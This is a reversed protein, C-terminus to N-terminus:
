DGFIRQLHKYESEQGQGAEHGGVGIVVPVAVLLVAHIDGSVAIDQVLLAGVVNTGVSYGARAALGHAGGADGDGDLLAGHHAVGVALGLGEGLEQMVIHALSLGEYRLFAMLATLLGKDLVVLGRDAFGHGLLLAVGLPNDVLESLLHPGAVLVALLHGPLVTLQDIYGCGDGHGRVGTGVIGGDGVRDGADLGHLHSSALGPAGRGGVRHALGGELVGAHLGLHLLAGVHDLGSAEAAGEEPDGVLGVVVPELTDNCLLGSLIGIGGSRYRNIVSNIQITNVFKKFYINKIWLRSSSCVSFFPNILQM